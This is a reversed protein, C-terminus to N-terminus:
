SKKVVGVIILVMGIVSIGYIAFTAVKFMNCAQLADTDQTYMLAWQGWDTTCLDNAMPITFGTPMPYFYAIIGIFLLIVGIVVIVLRVM